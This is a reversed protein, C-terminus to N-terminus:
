KDRIDQIQGETENGNVERSGSIELIRCRQKQKEIEESWRPCGDGLGEV